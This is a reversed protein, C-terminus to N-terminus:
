LTDVKNHVRHREAQTLARPPTGTRDAVQISDTPWSAIARAWAGLAESKHAFRPRAKGKGRQKRTV